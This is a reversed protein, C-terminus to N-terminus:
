LPRVDLKYSCEDLVIKSLTVHEYDAVSAIERVSETLSPGTRHGLIIERIADPPVPGLFLEGAPGNVVWSGPIDNEIWRWEHEYEWETSKTRFIAEPRVWPQGHLGRTLSIRASCYRVPQLKGSEIACKFLTSAADFAIVFGTHAAAYHAWMPISDPEQTLSLIGSTHSREEFAANRRKAVKAEFHGVDRLDAAPLGPSFEFPDNLFCPQTFRIRGGTLVDIRDPVAYKYLLKPVMKMETYAQRRGGAPAQATKQPSRPAESHIVGWNRRVRFGCSRLTASERFQRSQPCSRRYGALM